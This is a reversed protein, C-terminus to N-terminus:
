RNGKQKTDRYGTLVWHNTPVGNINNSLIVRIGKYEVFARTKGIEVKGRALVLPIRRAIRHDEFIRRMGREGVSWRFDVAGLGEVNMANVVDAKSKGIENVARMGRAAEARKAPTWGNARRTEWGKLAGESTGENAALRAKGDAITVDLDARVARLFEPDFQAAMEVGENLGHHQGEVETEEDIVGLAIAEARDM